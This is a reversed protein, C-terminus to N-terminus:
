LEKKRDLHSDHRRVSFHKKLVFIFFIKVTQVSSYRITGHEDSEETVDQVIKAGNKKAFETVSAVDDVEFAVDKVGDGHQVLHDGLETNGPLLANEFVFIIQFNIAYYLVTVIFIVFVYKIKSSLTPLSRDPDQKWDKTPSPSSDLTLM